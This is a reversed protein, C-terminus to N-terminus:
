CSPSSPPPRGRGRSRSSTSLAETSAASGGPSSVRWSASARPRSRRGIASGTTPAPPIVVGDAIEFPEVLREGAPVVNLEVRDGSELRWNVPAMFLRYSEWRGELDTFLEPYFELFVQRIFNGPRPNISCGGVYAIVGPRPVFGLSPDFSEGVRRWTFACDFLDNPYDVKFGVATKDGLLGDRDMTLGWAGVLFNKDGRFRSTQYTLDVGATFSGSRGLPDGVTGIFGLSSEELVSRRVRLVGLTTAPAVGLVERTRTVLGGIATHGARGSLKLGGLIPAEQGEVLGIRRSFYPLVDSGTGLGFEFVDAAELFFTRKEPFFLPFRTLNTQRTDVETEAFDTNVTLSALLNSGLRKTVDLSPEGVFDTRSGPAPNEFGTVFSPRVSLGWGLDFRPLGAMVGARSTQTVEYDRNPSAWRITEQLRQIRREVNFGWAEHGSAFSLSDIPIRIEATWGRLRPEHGGGLDRGM